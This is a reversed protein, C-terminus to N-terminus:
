RAHRTPETQHAGTHLCRTDRILADGINLLLPDLSIDGAEIQKLAESEPLLHSGRAVEFPGHNPTIRILPFNM